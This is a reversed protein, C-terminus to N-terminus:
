SESRARTLYYPVVFLLAAAILGLVILGVSGSLRGVKTGVYAVLFTAALVPAFHVSWRTIVRRDIPATSPMSAALSSLSHFVYALSALIALQLPAETSGRTFVWGAAVVLIGVGAGLSDPYLMALLVMLFGFGILVASANGGAMSVFISAVGFAGVLLRLALQSPRTNRASNITDILMQFLRNM